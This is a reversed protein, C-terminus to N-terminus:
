AMRLGRVIFYQALAYTIMVFYSMFVLGPSVFKHYALAFDSVLFFLSGIAIFKSLSQNIGTVVMACIAISYVMVPLQYAGLKDRFLLNFVVALTIVAISAYLKIGTPKVFYKKFFTTYCLQMILFAAIGSQFFFPGEFILFIDGFLACILAILLIPKQREGAGIIYWVILTAVILPKIIIIPKIVLSSTPATYIAILDALVVLAFLVEFIWNKKPPAPTPKLKAM